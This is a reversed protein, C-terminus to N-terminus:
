FLKNIENVTEKLLIDGGEPSVICSSPWSGYGSTGSRSSPLYSGRGSALQVLFTQVAKSAGKIRDGYDLYYEFSNTAFVVDGIRLVHLEVEVPPPPNEYDHIVRLQAPVSGNYNVNNAALVERSRQVDVAAKEAEEKTVQRSPLALPKFVKKLVPASEAAPAIVPLVDELAVAIRRAIEKRRALGYDQDYVRTQWKWDPLPNNQQARLLMMREDAKRGLLKHPSIDGACSCQPLLYIEGFRAAVEQRVDHWYDASVVRWAESVQSPCAINVLIGTLKGNNDYTSLINVTHDVHGEAHLMAPDDELAYMWGGKDATTLRRCEGVVATGQGYSIKGPARKEWAEIAAASIQETLFDFYQESDIFDPYKRHMEEADIGRNGLRKFRKEPSPFYLEMSKEPPVIEGYQPATHTHTVSAMINEGPIGTTGSVKERVADALGDSFAAADLSIIIVKEGNNELALVTTSLPDLVGESLRNGMQGALM